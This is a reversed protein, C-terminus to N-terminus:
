SFARSELRGGRESAEMSPRPIEPAGRGARLARPPASRSRPASAGDPAPSARRVGCPSGSGRRGRHERRGLDGRWRLGDERVGRGPIIDDAGSEV